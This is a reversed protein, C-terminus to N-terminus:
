LMLWAAVPTLTDISRNLFYGCGYLAGACCFHLLGTKL